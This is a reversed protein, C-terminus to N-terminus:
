DRKKQSAGHLQLWCRARGVWQGREAEWTRNELMSSIRAMWRSKRDMTSSSSCGSGWALWSTPRQKRWKTLRASEDNWKPLKFSSHQGNLVEQKRVRIEAPTDTRNEFKCLWEGTIFLLNVAWSARVNSSLKQRQKMDPVVPERTHIQTHTHTLSVFASPYSISSAKAMYIYKVQGIRLETACGALVYYTGFYLLDRSCQRHGSLSEEAPWLHTLPSGAACVAACDSKDLPLRTFWLTASFSRPPLLLWRLIRKKRGKVGPETKSEVSQDESWERM